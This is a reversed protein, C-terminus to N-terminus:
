TSVNLPAYSMKGEKAVEAGLFSHLTIELIRGYLFEPNSSVEIKGRSIEDTKKSHLIPLFSFSLLIANSCPGKLCTFIV